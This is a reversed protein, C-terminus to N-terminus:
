LWCPDEVSRGGLWAELVVLGIAAPPNYGVLNGLYALYAIYVLDTWFNVYLMFKKSLAVFNNFLMGLSLSLVKSPVESVHFSWFEAHCENEVKNLLFRLYESRTLRLRRNPVQM